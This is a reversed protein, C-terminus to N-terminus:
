FSQRVFELYALLPVAAQIQQDLITAPSIRRYKDEREESLLQWGDVFDFLGPSAVGGVGVVPHLLAFVGAHSGEASAPLRLVRCHLKDVSTARSFHCIM